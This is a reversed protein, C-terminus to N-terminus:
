ATTRDSAQAKGILSAMRATVSDTYKLITGNALKRGTTTLDPPRGAAVAKLVNGVGTNYAAIAAQVLADGALPRPDRYTGSLVGFQTVYDGIKVIVTPTAPRQSLFTVASRYVGVAYRLAQDPDQWLPKGDAGVKAIFEPHARDDIQMLGRGHGGDGTGTPGPPTLARGYDSEQEMFGALLFPSLRYDAAVKLIADAYVRGHTPLSLRFAADSVKARLVDMGSGVQKRFVFLLGVALVGGGAVLKKGTSWPLGRIRAPAVSRAARLPLQSVDITRRAEDPVADLRAQRRAM